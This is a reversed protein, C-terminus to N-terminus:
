SYALSLGCPQAPLTKSKQRGRVRQILLFKPGAATVLDLHLSHSTRFTRVCPDAARCLLATGQCRVASGCVFCRDFFAFPVFLLLVYRASQVVDKRDEDEARLPARPSWCFFDPTSSLPSSSSTTSTETNVPFGAVRALPGARKLHGSTARAPFRINFPLFLFPIYFFLAVQPEKTTPLASLSEAAGYSMPSVLEDLMVLASSLQRLCAPCFTESGACGCGGPWACARLLPLLSSSSNITPSPFSLAWLSNTRDHEGATAPCEDHIAAM